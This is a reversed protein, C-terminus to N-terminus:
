KDFLAKLNRAVVEYYNGVDFTQLKDKTAQPLEGFPKGDLLMRTEEEGFEVPGATFNLRKANMPCAFQCATCGILSNHASAHIWPPFPVSSDEENHTTLCRSASIVSEDTRIAGTPCAELCKGCTDCRKMRRAEGWADEECPMDTFCSSLYVFSGLGKVYAINNRGYQALGSRAALLKEPLDPAHVASYGYAGLVEKLRKEAAPPACRYERYTPPIVADLRRGGHRFALRCIPTPLAVSLVTPMGAAGAGNFRFRGMLYDYLGADIVGRAHLSEYEAKLEPLRSAPVAATYMGAANIKSLIDETMKMVLGSKKKGFKDM